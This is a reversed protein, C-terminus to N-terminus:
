LTRREQLLQIQRTLNVLTGNMQTINGKLESVERGCGTVKSEMARLDAALEARVGEVKAEIATKRVEGQQLVSRKWEDLETSVARVQEVSAFAVAADNTIGRREERQMRLLLLVNTAVSSLFGLALLVDLLSKADPVQAIMM